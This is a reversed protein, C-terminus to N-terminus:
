SRTLVNDKTDNLWISISPDFTYLETASITYNTNAGVEFGLQVEHNITIEPLANVALNCCPVISYLQPAEYIGPLKYADYSPDFGTTAGPIFVVITQDSYGNGVATLKLLNDLLDSNSYFDIKKDAQSYGINASFIYFLAIIISALKMKLTKM